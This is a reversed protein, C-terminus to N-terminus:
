HPSVYPLSRSNWSFVQITWTSNYKSVLYVFNITVKVIFIYSPYQYLCDSTESHIKEGASYTLTWLSFLKRRKTSQQSKCANTNRNYKTGSCSSLLTAFYLIRVLFLGFARKHLLLFLQSFENWLMHCPMLKLTIPSFCKEMLHDASFLIM